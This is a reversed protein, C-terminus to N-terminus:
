AAIPAPRARGRRLMVGMGAVGLLMLAWTEPEPSGAARVTLDVSGAYDLIGDVFNAQYTGSIPLIPGINLTASLGSFQQSPVTWNNFNSGTFNYNGAVIYNDTVTINSTFDASTTGTTFSGSVDAAGFQGVVDSNSITYYFQVKAQAASAVCALALAAIALIVKVESGGLRQPRVVNLIEM